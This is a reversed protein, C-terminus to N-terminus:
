KNSLEHPLWKGEKQIKGMAHLRRSVTTQGVVLVEALETQAGAPNKTMSTAIVVKSDDFGNEVHQNQHLVIVM